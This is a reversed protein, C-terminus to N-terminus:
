GAPRVASETAPEALEACVERTVEVFAHAAPPRYRERHWVLATVRPAIRRGLEVVRIREDYEDVTLRPVIAVGVGAAVMGQVTTNDDSRFVVRPECGHLRLQDEAQRASVCTRFSILSVDALDRLAVPRRRKALEWDAPVLAVYPDRLLEIGACPGDPLPLMAFTLDLDGRDVLRLLQEPDNSETLQIDVGPWEVVFRRMVAPLIRAGVSQFTGVRLSGANGASLAALDARAAALRATIAEAHALLRRGAETLSAGRPGGPREVLREGVIRELTAIQQSVASQTYGLSAAAGGFSGTEAIAQLAALHRLEIGLWGDSGM